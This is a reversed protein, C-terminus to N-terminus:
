IRTRAFLVQQHQCSSGVRGWGMKENTSRAQDEQEQWDYVDLKVDTMMGGLNGVNQKFRQVGSFAVFPDAFVCDPDYAAMDGLGSIFYRSDYDERISAVFEDRSM